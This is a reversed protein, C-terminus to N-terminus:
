GNLQINGYTTTETLSYSFIGNNQSYEFNSVRQVEDLLELADIVAAQFLDIKPTDTFITEFYPIGDTQNYEPEGLTTLVKNKSVNALAKIDLSTSINGTTDTFIDNNENTSITIM